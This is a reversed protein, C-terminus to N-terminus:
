PTQKQAVDHFAQLFEISGCNRMRKAIISGLKALLQAATRGKAVPNRFYGRRSLFNATSAGHAVPRMMELGRGYGVLNLLEMQAGSIRMFGKKAAADRIRTLKLVQLMPGVDADLNLAHIAHGKSTKGYAVYERWGNKRRRKRTYRKVDRHMRLITQSKLQLNIADGGKAQRAMHALKAAIIKGQLAITASSNASLLQAYGLATSAARGKPKRAKCKNNTIFIGSQRAYPGIGGTELAYVGVIQDATMGAALTERAYALKYRRESTHRPVFGYITKAAQLFDAVVPLPKSPPKAPKVPKPKPNPAVAVPLKCRPKKLGRYAPPHNLVYDGAVLVVGKRVKARRRERKTSISDWYDDAQNKHSARSARYQKHKLRCVAIVNKAADASAGTAASAGAASGGFANPWGEQAAITGPWGFGAVLTLGAVLTRAFGGSLQRWYCGDRM